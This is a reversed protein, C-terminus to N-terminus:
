RELAADIERKRERGLQEVEAARDMTETMAGFTSDRLAQERQAASPRESVPDPGCACLALLALLISLRSDRENM